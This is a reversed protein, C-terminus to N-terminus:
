LLKGGIPMVPDFLVGSTGCVKVAPPKIKHGNEDKSCGEGASPTVDMGCDSDPDDLMEPDVRKLRIYGGEGQNQVPVVFSVFTLTVSEFSTDVFVLLISVWRPGWSNQILWYDEGTESDTGYGMLVVAHDLDYSHRDHKTDTFVGGHYLNWNACAVAVVLPGTKALANMTVKYNNTPLSSYGDITAVPNGLLPRGVSAGRLSSSNNRLTCNQDSIGSFSAYGM